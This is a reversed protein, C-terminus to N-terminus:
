ARRVGAMATSVAATLEALDYPLRSHSTVSTAEPLPPRAHRNLSPSPLMSMSGRFRILALCSASKM